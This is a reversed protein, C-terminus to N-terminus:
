RRKGTYVPMYESRAFRARFGPLSAGGSERPPASLPPPPAVSEYSMYVNSRGEGPFISMHYIRDM